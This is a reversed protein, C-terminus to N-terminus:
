DNRTGESANCDDLTMGSRGRTADVAATTQRQERNEPATYCAVRHPTRNM